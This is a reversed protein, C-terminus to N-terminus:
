RVVAPAGPHSSRPRRSGSSSATGEAPWRGGPRARASAPPRPTRWSTSRTPATASGSPSACTSTRRSRRRSHEPPDSPPSSSTCGSRAASRRWVSWGASSTRCRTSSRACSTSSSSSGPCRSTTPDRLAQPPGRPRACRGPRLTAGPAAARGAASSLARDVLHEDLDTVLGVVHPLAACRAFAAGGKFDVLVFTLEEPPASVALSTVLTCLFESKGSGTTGGVLVHPGDRALDIRLPAGGATVGVAASPSGGTDHSGGPSAGQWRDLVHEVTIGPVGVVEPLSVRRPLAAGSGGGGVDRLPALARSLRDTWWPGVLDLTVPLRQSGTDLVYGDHADSRSLVARCGAPVDAADGVAALVLVGEVRGRAAVARARGDGGPVVMVRRSATSGAGLLDPADVVHPLRGVWDWSPDRGAVTVALEGPPHATCLQGVLGALLRDTVEPPGVVALGGVDDLDVVVPVGRAPPQTRHREDIWTVRTPVDGLGLRVRTTPGESWLPARCGEALVLVTHPDPHARHLRASEEALALDLRARAAAVARAHAEGERRRARGTGWRDAVATVLLVFPGLLAFALLQPGLLVALAVAVPVPALAAVWPIRTRSREPPMAPCEVEVPGTVPVSGGSPRVAITGDGREGHVPGPGPARRLRLTTSGMVITSTTDVVRPETGLPSGDVVVGNTSGADAVMVGSSGVRVVAHVRSLADDAVVLGGVAARGM